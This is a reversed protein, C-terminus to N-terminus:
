EDKVVGKEYVDFAEHRGIGFARTLTARIAMQRNEETDTFGFRRPNPDYDNGVLKLNKVAEVNTELQGDVNWMRLTIWEGNENPKNFKVTEVGKRKSRTVIM